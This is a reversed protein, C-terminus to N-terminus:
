KRKGIDNKVEEVNEADVVVVMGIGCNFTKFMENDKINGKEKIWKFMEPMKIKEYQIEAKLNDPLMRPVNEILGGGTIHAMAKINNKAKLISKVYIRTPRMLEEVMDKIDIENEKIIHRVLSYGNSHIGNSELGLLVDGNKMNKKPLLENREVAGVAFGALDYDKDNYMGPCKQPKAEWSPVDPSCVDKLSERLLVKAKNWM